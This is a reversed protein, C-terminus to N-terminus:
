RVIIVYEKLAGKFEPLAKKVFLRVILGGASFSYIKEKGLPKTRFSTSNFIIRANSNDIPEKKKESSIIEIEFEKVEEMKAITSPIEIRGRLDQKEDRFDILWLNNDVDEEIRKREAKIIM